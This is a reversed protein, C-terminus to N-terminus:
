EEKEEKPKEAKLLKGGIGPILCLLAFAAYCLLVGDLPLRPGHLMEAHGLIYPLPVWLLALSSPMADKRWGYADYHWALDDLGHSIAQALRLDAVPVEHLHAVMRRWFVVDQPRKVAYFDLLAELGRYVGQTLEPNEIVTPAEVRRLTM